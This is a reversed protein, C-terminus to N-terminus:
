PNTGECQCVLWGDPSVKESVTCPGGDVEHDLMSHTCAPCAQEWGLCSCGLLGCSGGEDHDAEPHGCLCMPLMDVAEVVGILARDRDALLQGIAILSHAISSLLDLQNGDDAGEEAIALHQQADMKM